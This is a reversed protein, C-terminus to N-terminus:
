ETDADVHVTFTYVSKIVVKDSEDWDVTTMGGDYKLSMVGDTEAVTGLPTAANKGTMVVKTTNEEASFDDTSALLQLFISKNTAKALIDKSAVLVPKTTKSSTLTATASKLQVDIPVSSKNQIKAVTTGIQGTFEESVQYPDLVFSHTTPMVVNITPLEITSTTEVATGAAGANLSEVTADAGEAFVATSLSLAM